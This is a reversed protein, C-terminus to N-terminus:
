SSTQIVLRRVCWTCVDHDLSSAATLKEEGQFYGNRVEEGGEKM